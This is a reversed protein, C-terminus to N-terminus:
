PTGKSRPENPTAFRDGGTNSPQDGTGTNVRDREDGDMEMWAMRRGDGPETTHHFGEVGQRAVFAPDAQRIGKLARGWAILQDLLTALEREHGPQPRFLSHNEFDQDLAFGVQARVTAVQLEAMIMRLHEVARTGKSSGYAVFGAAKNNWEKYLFDLANKLAASTSHNYEPTVFVFGDFASIVKSWQRTHEHEYQGRSPPIGEDLMPLNIAKLDVLQFTADTRHLAHELVWQAVAEGKRKPRTSGLIIAIHIM